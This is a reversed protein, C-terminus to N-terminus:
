IATFPRPLDCRLGPNSRRSLRDLLLIVFGDPRIAATSSCDASFRCRAKSSARSKQSFMNEQEPGIMERISRGLGQVDHFFFRSAGNRRVARMQEVQAGPAIKKLDWADWGQVSRMRWSLLGSGRQLEYQLRLMGDRMGFTRGVQLLTDIKSM